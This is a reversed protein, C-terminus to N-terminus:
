DLGLLRPVPLPGAGRSARLARGPCPGVAGAAVGAEGARQGLQALLAVPDLVVHLRQASREVGGAVADAGPVAPIAARHAGRRGCQLLRAAAESGAGGGEGRGRGGREAGSVAAERGRRRRGAAATGGFTGAVGAHRSGLTVLRDGLLRGSQDARGECVVTERIPRSRRVLCRGGRNTRKAGGLM